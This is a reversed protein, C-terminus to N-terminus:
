AKFIELFPYKNKESFKAKSSRLVKSFGYKSFIPNSRKTSILGSARGGHGVYVIRLSQSRSACVTCYLRMRVRDLPYDGGEAEILGPLDVAAVRQCSECVAYLRFAHVLDQLTQM